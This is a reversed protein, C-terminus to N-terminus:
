ASVPREEMGARPLAAVALASRSRIAAIMSEVTAVRDGVWTEGSV